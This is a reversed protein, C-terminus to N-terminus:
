SARGDPNDGPIQFPESNLGDQKANDIMVAASEDGATNAGPKPDPPGSRTKQAAIRFAKVGIYRAGVNLLEALQQQGLGSSPALAALQHNESPRLRM